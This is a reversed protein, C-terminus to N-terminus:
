APLSCVLGYLGMVKSIAGPGPLLGCSELAERISAFYQWGRHKCSLVSQLKTPPTEFRM